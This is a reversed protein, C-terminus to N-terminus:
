KTLKEGCDSCFRWDSAEVKAGCYPCFNMGGSKVPAATAIAGAKHNRGAKIAVPASSEGGLRFITGRTGASTATIHGAHILRTLHYSVTNTSAGVAEAIVKTSLRLDQEAGDLQGKLYELIQNRVSAGSAAPIAPEVAASEEAGIAGVVPGAEETSGEATAESAGTEEVLADAASASKRPM